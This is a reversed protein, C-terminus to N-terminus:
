CRAMAEIAKAVDNLYDENVRQGTVLMRWYILGAVADSLLEINADAPIEGRAIARTFIKEAHGRRQQQLRGRIADTLDSSRRMEAHLDPLIRGILPHRLLRRLTLLTEYIDGYLSGTDPEVILEIGITEMREVVMAFKSPWRRYLAAKGVGARKAVKELRLSGYGNIAWETFLAQTLAETVAPQMVAAGSPARKKTRSETLSNSKVNNSDSSENSDKVSDAQFHKYNTM